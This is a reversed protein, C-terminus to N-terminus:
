AAPAPIPLPPMPQFGPLAEVRRLWARLAPYPALPLGGEPAHAIYSYCALDAISPRPTALFDQGTSSLHAEMFAFLRAALSRAAVPDGPMGFQAVLRALGPGFRVEAAAISLWRQVAAAAAPTQPLWDSGPAYRSALYVLIANSDSILLEGDRLVPIEGLPNLARFAPQRRAAASAAVFRHPLRLMALLLSVRHCHGSLETGYLTLGETPSFDTDPM